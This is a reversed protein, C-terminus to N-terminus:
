ELWKYGKSRHLITTIRVEKEIIAYIARYEGVRIRYLAPDFSGELKKIDAGSRPLYPKEKLQEFAKKFRERMEKDLKYFERQASESILVTWKNM